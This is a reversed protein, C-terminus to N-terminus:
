DGHETWGAAKRKKEKMAASHTEGAEFTIKRARACESRRVRARTARVSEQLVTVKLM